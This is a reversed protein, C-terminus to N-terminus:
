SIMLDYSRLIIPDCSWLDSVVLGYLGYLGYFGSFWFGTFVTFVTDVMYATRRADTVSSGILMSIFCHRHLGRTSLRVFPYVSLPVPPHIFPRPSPRFTLVASYPHETFTLTPHPYPLIPCPLHLHLNPKGTHQKYCGVSCSSAVCLARYVHVLVYISFLHNFVSHRIRSPSLFSTSNSM